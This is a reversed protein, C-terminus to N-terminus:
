KSEYPKFIEPFERTELSMVQEATIVGQAFLDRVEEQIQSTILEWQHDDLPDEERTRLRMLQACTGQYNEYVAKLPKM